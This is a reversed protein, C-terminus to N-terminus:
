KLFLSHADKVNFLSLWRGALHVENWGWKTWVARLTESTLGRGRSGLGWIRGWCWGAEQGGGRAHARSLSRGNEAKDGLHEPGDCRSSVGAGERM